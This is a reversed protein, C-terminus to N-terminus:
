FYAPYVEQITDAAGDGRLERVEPALLCPQLLERVQFLPSAHSVVLEGVGKGRVGLTSTPESNNRERTPVIGGCAWIPCPSLLPPQQRQHSRSASSGPRCYVAPTSSTFPQCTSILTNGSKGTVIEICGDVLSIALLGCLSALFCYLESIDM